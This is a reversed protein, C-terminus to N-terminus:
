ITSLLTETLRESSFDLARKALLPKFKDIIGKNDIIENLISDFSSDSNTVIIGYKGGDLIENAGTTSTAIVPVGLFMAEVIVLGFGEFRSPVLLIDANLISPYPNSLFGSLSVTNQLGYDSIKKSLTKEEPGNGIITLHLRTHNHKPLRHISEIIRDFGKEKSLRGVCLLNIKANGNPIVSGEQQSLRYIEDFDITNPVISSQEIKLYKNFKAALSQSVFIVKDFNRYIQNYRQIEAKSITENLFDTHVWAYKLTRQLRLESILEVCLGDAFAIVINPNEKVFYHKLLIKLSIKNDLLRCYISQFIKRRFSHNLLTDILAYKSIRDKYVSKSDYIALIKIDFHPHMLKVVNLLIQEMGGGPIHNVIFILKNMIRINSTARLWFM